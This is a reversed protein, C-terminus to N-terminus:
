CRELEGCLSTSNTLESHVDFLGDWARSVVSVVELATCCLSYETERSNPCVIINLGVNYRKSTYIYTYIYPRCQVDTVDWQFFFFQKHFYKGDDADFGPAFCNLIM